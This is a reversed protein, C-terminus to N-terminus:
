YGPNQSWNGGALDIELQPIPFLEHKGVVFGDIHQEAQGTRVLDFFRHGECALELRRENYIDEISNREVYCAGEKCISRSWEENSVILLKRFYWSEIINNSFSELQSLLFVYDINKYLNKLEYHNIQGPM